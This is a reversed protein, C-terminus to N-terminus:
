MYLVIFLLPIFVFARRVCVYVMLYVYMCTYMVRRVDRSKMMVDTESINRLWQWTNTSTQHAIDIREM